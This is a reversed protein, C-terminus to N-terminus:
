LVGDIPNVNSQWSVTFPLSSRLSRERAHGVMMGALDDRWRLVPNLTMHTHSWPAHWIPEVFEADFSFVDCKAHRKRRKCRFVAVMYM